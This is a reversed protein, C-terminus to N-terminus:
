VYVLRDPPKKERERQSRHLPQLQQPSSPQHLTQPDFVPEETSANAPLTNIVQENDIDATIPTLNQVDDNLDTTVRPQHHSLQVEPEM